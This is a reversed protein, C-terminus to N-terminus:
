RFKDKYKDKIILYFFFVGALFGITFGLIFFVSEEMM